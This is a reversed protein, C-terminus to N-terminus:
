FGAARDRGPGVDSYVRGGNLGIGCIPYRRPNDYNVSGAGRRPRRARRRRVRRMISPNGRTRNLGYPRGVRSTKPRKRDRSGVLTCLLNLFGMARRGLPAIDFFFRGAGRWGSSIRSYERWYNRDYTYMRCRAFPLRQFRSQRIREPYVCRLRALRLLLSWVAVVRLLLNVNCDFGGGM